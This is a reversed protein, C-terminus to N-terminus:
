EINYPSERMHQSYKWLSYIQEVNKEGYEQCLISKDINNEMGYLIQDTLKFSNLMEGKNDVTPMIDPDAAKKRIYDPIQIYEAIQELQTRYLHMIPMIDACHDVGWKSFTGTLWETRNAAGVVLLNRVEAYQYLVVMRIRHKAIAYANGKALWSNAKPKLRKILVSEGNKPIFQKRGLEVVWTRLKRGPIFRLPLLRYTKTSRLISNIPKVNLQIGLHKAFQKAHIRHIKKSDKEPLNILHVKNAGLSRVTLKAAIASDLGGSLGIVAGDRHLNKLTTRIKAEITKCLEPLDLKRIQSIDDM